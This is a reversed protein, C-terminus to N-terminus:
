PTVGPAVLWAGVCAGALAGLFFGALLGLLLADFATIPRNRQRQVLRTPTPDQFGVCPCVAPPATDTGARAFGCLGYGALHDEAAHGCRCVKM